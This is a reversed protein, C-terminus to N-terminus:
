REREGPLRWHADIARMTEALFHRGYRALFSVPSLVRDQPLRDPRLSELVRDLQRLSGGNRRKVARVVKHEARAAEWLGRNRISGLPGRLTPDVAEAEELLRAYGATVAERVAALSARVGEPLESRVLRDRLSEPPEAVDEPLLGLKEMTREVGPEVVTGSFRPVALPPRIGYAEFLAGSQALYALEGPGGVYALTPFVASEAVPRLLVNPSFRGPDAALQTLLAGREMRLRTDRAVFDDGRTYLRHRGTEAHLFVNTAGEVVSVQGRYGAAEIRQTREAVVREHAGAETLARELVVASAAKLAPDAADAVLADFESLLATMAERFAGAVTAGAQRYPDLIKRVLLANVEDGGVIQAILDCTTELEGELKRESMPLPRLDASSLEMRYRRGQPDLIFAHNVEAWDHDEGAVWFVPLVLTGLSTELHRALAVASLAKYLTYLPGTLFGAQQGTTVMAGGEEVFRALRARAAESAPTLAAAARARAERDFRSRVEALKAAYADLDHPSGSYFSLASPNEQLFDRVLQSGGIPRPRVLDSTLM